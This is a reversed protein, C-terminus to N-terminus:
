YILLIEMMAMLMVIMVIKMMMKVRVRDDMGDDNLIDDGNVDVHDDEDDDFFGNILAVTCSTCDWMFGKSLRTAFMIRLQNTIKTFSLGMSLDSSWFLELLGRREPHCDSPITPRLTNNM